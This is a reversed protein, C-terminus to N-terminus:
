DEERGYAGTRGLLLLVRPPACARVPARTLGEAEPKERWASGVRWGNVTHFCMCQHSSMGLFGLTWSRM